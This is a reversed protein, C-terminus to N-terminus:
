PGPALADRLRPGLARAYTATMHHTDRYVLFRGLVAPCPDTFCQWGTPDIFMAGARETVQRDLRLRRTLVAMAYPTACASADDLHASLCDLPDEAMRVTQGIVAVSKSSGSVREITHRLGTAWVDEHDSLDAMAGDITLTYGTSDSLVVVAPRERDIRAFVAERWQDCESYERNFSQNWVRVDAASCASKTLSVFRWHNDKALRDIAPFWQAAHSDGMLVITTSSGTDGFACTGIATDPQDVHCGDSYIVPLDDRATALSPVLDGPVPSPVLAPLAPKQSSPSGSKSPATTATVSPLPADDVSGGVIPGSPQLQAKSMAGLALGSVAVSLSLAGALALVRRPQTGVIRGTRIPEEIWRQSAAAIAIALGALGIRVPGPLPGFAVTPLVLIPWHWLYLSYSIRGLYRVPALSLFRRPEPVLPRRAASPGGRGTLALGSAIVLASGLTPLLAAMGPFPTTDSLIVGSAVVMALGLWGAVPAVALRGLGVAAPLALLGGLALEWARTLLSFFAWPQQVGTLWIALGLSIVFVVALTFGVRRVGAAVSGAAFAVGATLGLLAPWFLYFQEEVGLSWFHLVPSPPMDSALYDTAQLAFRINSAYVAAAAIDATVDPVRLPPLILASAIATVLLTVAAAPLLRRARRAYFAPLSIRGTSGLERILLGTILFGSLVFFVDVGVYGGRFGPLRAHYLLVLVVAVARLGELDPRFDPGERKM